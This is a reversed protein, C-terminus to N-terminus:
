LLEATKARIQRHQMITTIFIKSKKEKKEAALVSTKNPQAEKM